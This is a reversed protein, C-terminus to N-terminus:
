EGEIGLVLGPFNERVFNEIRGSTTSEAFISNIVEMRSVWVEERQAIQDSITIGLKTVSLCMAKKTKNFNSFHVIILNKSVMYNLISDYRTDWPGRIYKVMPSLARESEYPKLYLGDLLKPKKKIEVVRKLYFPYRILFDYFAFKARGYITKDLFYPQKIVGCISILLLIRYAHFDYDEDPLIYEKQDERPVVEMTVDNEILIEFFGSPRKEQSEM